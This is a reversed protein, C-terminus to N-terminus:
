QFAEMMMKALYGRSVGDDAQPTHDTDDCDILLTSWNVCIQPYDVFDSFDKFTKGLNRIFYDPMKKLQEWVTPETAAFAKNASVGGTLGTVAVLTVLIGALFVSVNRWRNKM